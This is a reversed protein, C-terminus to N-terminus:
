RRVAGLRAHARRVLDAGQRRLRGGPPQQPAGGAEARVGDGQQLGDRDETGPALQALSGLQCPHLPGAGRVQDVREAGRPDQDRALAYGERLRDDPRGHLRFQREAAPSLEVELRGLQQGVVVGRGVHHGGLQQSRALRAALPGHVGEAGGRVLRPLAALRAEGHAVEAARELLRGHALSPRFEHQLQAPGLGGRALGLRHRPQGLGDLQRGVRALPSAGGEAGAPREHGPAPEGVRARRQLPTQPVGPLLLGLQAAPQLRRM